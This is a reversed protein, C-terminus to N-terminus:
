LARTLNRVSETFSKTNNTCVASNVLCTKLLTRSEESGEKIRDLMDVAKRYLGIAKEFEKAKFADNGEAKSAQANELLTKDDMQWKTTEREGISVLEVDFILKAGGPISPPSGHAGYGYDAQIHLEAREGLRMSKVGIDWGKIVQGKGLPFKIPERGENRSSDFM